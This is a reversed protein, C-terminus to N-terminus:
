HSINIQVLHLPILLYMQLNLYAIQNSFPIRSSNSIIKSWDREPCGQGCKVGMDQILTKLLGGGVKTFSCKCTKTKFYVSKVPLQQELAWTLIFEKLNLVHYVERLCHRKQFTLFSILIQNSQIKMVKVSATHQATNDVFFVSRKIETSMEQAYINCQNMKIEVIDYVILM